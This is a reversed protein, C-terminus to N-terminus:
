LKQFPTYRHVVQEGGEGGQTAQGAEGAEDGGRARRALGDFLGGELGEAVGEGGVFGFVDAKAGAPV